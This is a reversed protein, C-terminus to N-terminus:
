QDNNADCLTDTDIVVKSWTLKGNNIKLTKSKYVPMFVDENMGEKAKNVTFFALITELHEISVEFSALTKGYDPKKTTARLKIQGPQEIKDNKLDGDIEQDISSCLDSLCFEFSGILEQKSLDDIEDANDIDYVDVRFNQMEEFHYDVKLETVFEPNLNDAILETKGIKKTSQSNTIDWLICMADSKSDKDLNVLNSCSFTIGVEEKLHNFPNNNM